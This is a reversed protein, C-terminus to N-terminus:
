PLIEIVVAATSLRVLTPPQYSVAALYLNSGILPAMGGPPCVVAATGDGAPDLVGASNVLFPPPNGRRTMQFLADGTLPVEVGGLTIPGRGTASALVAYSMGAEGDPFDMAINATGGAASSISSADASIFGDYSFVRVAGVEPMGNVRAHHVSMMVEPIGDGNLDGAGAISFAAREGTATGGFQHVIEGTRGSYLYMKGAEPLGNFDARFGGSLIDDSGDGDVDGANASSWGNKEWIREGVNRRILAGTGSIVYLCGAATRGNPKALWAGVVYDPLADGDIDNLGAVSIGTMDGPNVGLVTNLTSGDRGSALLAMGHNMEGTRLDAFTAGIIVEPTGDGNIDGVPAVANGFWWDSQPSDWRHIQAGTAGSFAYASGARYFGSPFPEAYPEGVLVDEHGDADLDGGGNVATGFIGWRQQGLLERIVAGTAGDVIRVLGAASQGNAKAYPAGLLLDAVGDANVDAAAVSAGLGDGANSGDVRWILAGTAGSYLWASGADVRGGPDEQPAGMLLDKVGDGDVDAASAVSWGFNSYSSDGQFEYLTTWLGGQASAAGSCALLSAALWAARARSSPIRLEM